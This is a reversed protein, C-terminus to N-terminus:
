ISAKLAPYQLNRAHTPAMCRHFDTGIVYLSITVNCKWTVRELGPDLGPDKVEFNLLM